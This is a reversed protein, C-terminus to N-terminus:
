AAGKGAAKVVPKAASKTLPRDVIGIQGDQTIGIALDERLTDQMDMVQDRWWDASADADALQSRAASLEAQLDDIRDSLQRAHERLHHLEWRELRQRLRKLVPDETSPM